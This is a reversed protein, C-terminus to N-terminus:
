NKFVENLLNEAISYPDVKRTQIKNIEEKIKEETLLTELKDEVLSDLISFLELKYREQKLKDMYESTKLLDRLQYLKDILEDIGEGNKAVTKLIQPKNEEDRPDMSLMYQLDNVTKQVGDLDAKNVVFLDAIELIGAKIAQIHDGLGPVLVVISVDALKSIEIEDQGVGVTEIIIIDNGMADMVKIIDYTSRSLGGLTGRTAVSRIFVKDDNFFKQMRIRDGLIAGGSFPSTPDIAVIGVKKDEERFKKILANVLTSKGAGPNGTVGILFANGTYPYIAKLEDLFGEERDDVMRILKAAARINGKIVEQYLM